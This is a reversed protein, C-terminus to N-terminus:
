RAAGECSIVAAGVQGLETLSLKLFHPKTIPKPERLVNIPCEPDAEAYNRTAPVVQHQYALLSAALEVPGGASSLSGIYSKPAFVPTAAGFVAAIGRAEWADEERTSQGHANVHDIDGPTIGAQTLAARIARVIGSGDLDRDFASGFGVLEGYIKAGRKRAHDYDELAFVGAGESVVWGDRNKEFPRCAGAPDDNRRSLPAFLCHRSLSLVNLKSDAAGCLFFDAQDRRLIRFAEGMALLGAVDTETISNNPGQADQMISVHCAVMNPLYKLMWLPPMTPISDAGWKKLDIHGTAAVYGALAPAILDDTETPILSSGFECGFRTSDLKARDIRVDAMCVNACAVGIQITRAMMKLSKRDKKDLFKKADFDPLEGGFSVGFHSADFLSIARVGSRGHIMGDWFSAADLGLPTLVSLGTIVARRSM